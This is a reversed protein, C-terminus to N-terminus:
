SILKRASENKGLVFRIRKRGEVTDRVFREM